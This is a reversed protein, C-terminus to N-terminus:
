LLQYAMFDLCVLLCVVVLLFDSHSVLCSPCIFFYFALTWSPFRVLINESSFFFFFLFLFFFCYVIRLILSVILLYQRLFPFDFYVPTSDLFILVVPCESIFFTRGVLLHLNCPALGAFWIRPVYFLKPTSYFSLSAHCFIQICLFMFFLKLAEFFGRLCIIVQYQESCSKLFYHIPFRWVMFAYMYELKLFKWDMWSLSEICSRVVWPFYVGM